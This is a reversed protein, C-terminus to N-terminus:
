AAALVRTTEWDRVNTTEAAARQQSKVLPRSVSVTALDHKVIRM